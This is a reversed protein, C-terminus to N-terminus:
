ATGQRRRQTSRPRDEPKTSRENVRGVRPCLVTLGALEAAAAIILDPIAPARHQGQRTLLLVPQRLRRVPGLAVVHVSGASNEVSRACIDRGEGDFRVRVWTHGLTWDHSRLESWDTRWRCEM